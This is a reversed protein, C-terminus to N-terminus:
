LTEEEVINKCPNLTLLASTYSKSIGYLINLKTVHSHHTSSTTRIIMNYTLILNLVIIKDEKKEKLNSKRFYLNLM